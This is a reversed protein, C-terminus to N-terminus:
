ADASRRIIPRRGHQIATANGRGEAMAEIEAVRTALEADVESVLRANAHNSAALFAAFGEQSVKPDPPNPTRTRVAGHGRRVVFCEGTRLEMLEAYAEKKPLPSLESALEGADVPGPAFLVRVAANNRIIHRLSPTLQSQSQHCLTLNVRFRRGEAIIAEFISQGFNQFEDVFLRTYPRKDEPLDARAVAANWIGSILLEGLVDASGQLKDAGLTVLLVAGPTDIVRKLDFSSNGSLVRRLRKNSLYPSLKNLIALAWTQQHEKSLAEFRKFFSLAYSDEVKALVHARFAANTLLPEMELPSLGAEVAVTGAANFTEDIQVGWSDARRKVAGQFPGVRTAIEGQGQFCNWPLVYDDRTPDLLYLNKPDFGSAFLRLALRENLDGVRDLSVISM